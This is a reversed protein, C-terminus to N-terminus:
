SCLSQTNKIPFGLRVWRNSDLPPLKRYTYVDAKLTALADYSGLKAQVPIHQPSTPTEPNIIPSQADLIAKAQTGGVLSLAPGGALQQTIIHPKDYDIVVGELNREERQTDQAQLM